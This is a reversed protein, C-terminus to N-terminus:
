GDVVLADLGRRGEVLMKDAPIAWVVPKRRLVQNPQAVSFSVRGLVVLTSLAVSQEQACCDNFSQPKLSLLCGRATKPCRVGAQVALSRAFGWFFLARRSREKKYLLVDLRPWTWTGMYLDEEGTSNSNVVKCNCIVAGCVRM